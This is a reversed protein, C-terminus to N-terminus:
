IVHNKLCDVIEELKLIRSGKILLVADEKIVKKLKKLLITKEMFSFVREAQFRSQAKTAINRALEGITFVYDIEKPDIEEGIKEHIRIEDEGTGFMDGLIVIKQKYGKFSYMTELASRLSTPNSKYSDNLIDFGNANILENRMGTAEIRMLGKQIDEFSVDFFRAVVIAATANYVQHSGIVSLFFELSVPKELQLWIGNNETSKLKGVYDNDSNSGFTIKSQSLELKEVGKRLALSDGFYVFLGDEKLGSVIELKAKLINEVSGLTNLHVDTSNTIIAADLLTMNSLLEIEGPTSMGMEIVAMETNEDMSLLTLPVGLYNNLNGLTKHTKYKRKLISALIDKTSTKGNSGTIGIAKVNLQQRYERALEQIAILTDEVIIFPFEINPISKDKNWLAAKAGCEIAKEIFKHGDFNEGVIPVFLQGEKITRTDISVGKIYIEEFEFKLDQGGIMEEIEKLKRRIM